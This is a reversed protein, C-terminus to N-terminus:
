EESRKLGLLQEEAVAERTALLAKGVAGYIGGTLAIIGDTHGELDAMGLCPAHGTPALFAKSALKMLNLWGAENQAYLLLQDPQVVSANRTQEAAQPAFYMVTGIIPQIGESSAAMSFELSAFLNGHDTVAIAPMSQTKAWKVLEKVGIAGELLSYSSHM